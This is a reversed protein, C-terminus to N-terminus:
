RRELNNLVTQIPTVKRQFFFFVKQGKVLAKVGEDQKKLDLTILNKM